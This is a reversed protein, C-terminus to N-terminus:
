EMWRIASLINTGAIISSPSSTDPTEPNHFVFELLPQFLGHNMSIVNFSSASKWDVSAFCALWIGRKLEMGHPLVNTRSQRKPPNGASVGFCRQLAPLVVPLSRHRSASEMRGVIRSTALM